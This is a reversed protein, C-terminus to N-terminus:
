PNAGPAALGQFLPVLGKAVVTGAAGPLVLHVEYGEAAHPTLSAGIYAPEKPMDDPPKLNPNKTTIAFIKAFMRVLGQTSFLMVFAAQEPLESRVAKFGATRGVGGSGKLYSDILTKAEDWTPAAVEFLRKGDTGYWNSLRGDGFMAKIADVQGPQNGSLEALKEANMTAVVHTFTLGEYTQAGSEVKLDKLLASQGEGGSMARNIAISADIYKRPDSVRIDKFSRVGKEFAATGLSEIRGLSHLEAQAKEVEPSPKGGTNIMKLSMGQLRDFTRAGVNMYVYAMADPPLRDLSALADSKVGAISKAAESDNKVKLFAALHAGKESIDIHATLGDAYKISDFMGGYLDKAFQMVGANNGQQAAQDLAGMFTQRFQDIQAEYRTALSAANVYIGFDGGFFAKAGAGTVVSDLTKGGRKAIDAVLSKSSGFAVIGQGKAAYWSGNGDPADFADYDGDQHKLEVDKGGSLEKIVGKYDDSPVLVAFPPPGGGDAAEGIRVLVLFPSTVAHAGHHERIQGLPGALTGEAMNAWDPNIAKLMALVDDRTAELGRTRVALDVEAPAAKLM